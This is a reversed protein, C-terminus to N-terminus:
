LNNSIEMLKRLRHNLCSKTINLRQAIQSLTEDKYELRNEAVTRLTDPLSDLGVTESINNIANIQKLSADIQKTMNSLECNVQRNTRNKLDKEITLETLKLYSKTAGILALFDCIEERTKLYVVFNGKREILKPIMYEESLIECFDTAAQYSTFIFELHYGTSSEGNLKPVTLSGNGMFYGRIYALKCCDKEILREDINLNISFGETDSALIGIDNLIELSGETVFSFTIREKRNLKDENVVANVDEGYIDTLLDVYYMAAESNDSSVEFGIKGDKTVVAGTARIYASLGAIKCCDSDYKIKLLENKVESSFNM